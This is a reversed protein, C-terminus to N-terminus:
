RNGFLQDCLNGRNKSEQLAMKMSRMMTMRQHQHDIAMNINLVNNASEFTQLFEVGKHQFNLFRKYNNSSDKHLEVVKLSKSIINSIFNSKLYSKNLSAVHRIKIIDNIKFVKVSNNRNELNLFLQFM